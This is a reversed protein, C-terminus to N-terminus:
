HFLETGLGGGGFFGSSSTLKYGLMIKYIFDKYSCSFFFSSHAIGTCPKACVAWPRVQKELYLKISVRGNM